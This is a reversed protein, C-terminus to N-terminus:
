PQRYSAPDLAKPSWNQLFGKVVKPDYSKEQELLASDQTHLRHGNSDLVVFVPFGFRQPYGLDALIDENMNERSYNLHISVYQEKMLTSITSDQQVFDHFRYCWVCWNGGIQVLIHKNASTAQQIAVQLQHHGDAEPDYLRAPHADQAIGLPGLVIFLITLLFTSHWSQVQKM